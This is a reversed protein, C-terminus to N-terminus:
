SREDDEPNENIWLRAMYTAEEPTHYIRTSYLVDGDNGVETIEIVDASWGDLAELQHVIIVCQRQM